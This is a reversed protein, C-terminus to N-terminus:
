LVVQIPTKLQLKGWSVKLTVDKSNAKQYSFKVILKEAPSGSPKEETMSVRFLIPAKNIEFADLRSARVKSPDIFALSWGTGDASRFLGLYYSGIPVEKGGIKLPLNTDLVTWFDKGFRWVRGKTMGDFKAVYEYEKKWVPRGYHISFEGAAGDKQQDWYLVRDYGRDNPDADGYAEIGAKKEQASLVGCCVLVFVISLSKLTM